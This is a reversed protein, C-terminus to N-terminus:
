WETVKYYFVDTNEDTSFIFRKLKEDNGKM